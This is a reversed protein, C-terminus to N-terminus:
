RVVFVYTSRYYPSTTLMQAFDHPVGMVVDCQRSNVLERVFGRGMRQWQYHLNAQLDTALLSAIRNEFGEEKSNSFPLNNPDACVRLERSQGIATTASLFLLVTVWIKPFSSFM